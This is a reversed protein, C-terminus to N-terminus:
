VDKWAQCFHWLLRVGVGTAGAARAARADVESATAFRRSGIKRLLSSYGFRQTLEVRTTGPVGRKTHIIVVGNSARGGYIAAASAGKLIEVSEIEAPNLDAIRNVLGDQNLAPNSGSAAGTIGNANSAIAIDSLVVGDVIYLPEATANISTIGRLRIQVGGGPAGSNTSIEAGAVKGQLQHELSPTPHYTLDEFGM